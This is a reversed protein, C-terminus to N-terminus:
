FESSSKKAGYPRIMEPWKLDNHGGGGIGQRPASQLSPPSVRGVGVGVGVFATGGEKTSGQRTRYEGGAELAGRLMDLLISKRLEDIM